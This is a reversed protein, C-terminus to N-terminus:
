SVLPLKMADVQRRYDEAIAEMIAIQKAAMKQTLANTAIWKPYIRRRYYLEREVEKLKEATTYDDM